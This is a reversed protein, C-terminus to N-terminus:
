SLQEEEAKRLLHMVKTMTYGLPDRDMAEQDRDSITVTKDEEPVVYGEPDFVSPDTILEILLQKWDDKSLHRNFEKVEYYAPDVGFGPSESNGGRVNSYVAIPAYGEVETDVMIALVVGVVDYVIIVEADPAHRHIEPDDFKLRVIRCVKMVKLRAVASAACGMHLELDDSAPVLNGHECVKLLNEITYKM